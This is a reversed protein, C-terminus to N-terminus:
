AAPSHQRVREARALDHRLGHTDHVGPQPQALTLSLNLTLTLTLTPTTCAEREATAAADCPHDRPVARATAAACLSADGEYCVVGGRVEVLMGPAAATYIDLPAVLTHADQWYCDAKVGTGRLLAVTADSLVTACAGVGNMGARDTPQADFVILLKQAEQSFHVDVLAPAHRGYFSYSLSSAAFSVGNIALSVRATGSGWSPKCVVHTANVLSAESSVAGFRCRLLSPDPLRDFGNGAVTVQTGGDAPGRDPHISRLTPQEYYTYSASSLSFTGPEGGSLSVTLAVTGPAAAAPVTCALRTPGLLTGAVVTGNVSCVLQGEGLLMFGSGRM